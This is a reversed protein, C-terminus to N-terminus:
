RAAATKPSAKAAAKAPERPAKPTRAKGKPAAKSAPAKKPAAANAPKSKSSSKAAVKRVDSKPAPEAAASPRPTEVAAKAPAAKARSAESEARALNAFRTLVASRLREILEHEFAVVGGPVELRTREVDADAVRFLVLPLDRTQASKRLKEGIERCHTAIRGCDLAIVDPDFSSALDRSEPWAPEAASVRFGASEFAAAREKRADADYSLLLVKPM